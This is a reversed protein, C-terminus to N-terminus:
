ARKYNKLNQDGNPSIDPALWDRYVFIIPENAIWVYAGTDEMIEQMRIYIAARKDPDKEIMGKKFLDEFEPDSWREWNWKGIQDKVFWQAQDYPDPVSGFRMLWLQLDKWQSGKSEQGMDWFPGSDVPIIKVTIGVDQLNAQIIQAAAMRDQLSLTRLELSLGSVGAAKLLAKSKEPNFDIKTTERRGLVGPTVFGYARKALGEYAAANISDVDVAHQIAQRVRIDALKPHQTNMGMWMYKPYGAVYVKSNAPPSTKYRVATPPTIRTIDVEGAEYALEAAKDDEVDIYNIQDFDTAPGTWGPNRTFVIKTKPTWKYVYPGCTAPIDTTFKGGAAETAKKSIVVGPYGALSTLWLPEFPFKLVLAGSYKDTVEVHDLAAWNDSWDGKLAREFTYKVDEASLEGNGGSWQFGPKLTFNIRLGDDSAAISSVYPAPRWGIKDGKIDFEVLGPMVSVLVDGEAEGSLNNPDLTGIDTDMRANLSNHDDAQALQPLSGGATVAALASTTALFHRRTLKIESM